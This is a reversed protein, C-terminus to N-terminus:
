RPARTRLRPDCGHPPRRPARRSPPRNSWRASTLSKGRIERTAKRGQWRRPNRHGGHGLARGARDALELLERLDALARVARHVLRAVALRATQHRQLPHLETAGTEVALPHREGRQALDRQEAAQAVRVDDPQVLHRHARLEVRDEEDELVALVLQAPQEVRHRRGKRRRLDLAQHALEHAAASQVGHWTDLSYVLAVM